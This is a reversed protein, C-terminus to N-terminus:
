RRLVFIITYWHAIIRHTTESDTPVAASDPQHEKKDPEPDLVARFSIM